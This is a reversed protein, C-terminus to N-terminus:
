NRYMNLETRSLRPQAANGRINIGTARQKRGGLDLAHAHQQACLRSGAEAGRYIPGGEREGADCREVLKRLRQPPPRHASLPLTSPRVSAFSQRGSQQQQETSEVHLM